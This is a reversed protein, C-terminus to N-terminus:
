WVSPRSPLGWGRSVTDMIDLLLVPQHSVGSACAAAGEHAAAATLSVPGTGRQCGAGMGRPAATPRHLLPPPSPLLPAAVRSSSSRVGSIKASCRRSTVTAAAAARIRVVSTAMRSPPSSRGRCCSVACNLSGFVSRQLRFSRHHGCEHEMCGLAWARQGDRVRARHVRGTVQRCAFLRHCHQLSPNGRGWPKLRPGSCISGWLLPLRGGVARPLRLKISLHPRSPKLGRGAAQCGPM